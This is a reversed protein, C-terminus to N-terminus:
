KAELTITQGAKMPINIVGNEPKLDSPKGDLQYNNGEFPSALRLTGGKESKVTVSVVKGAKREASVLFAGITRLQRFSVDSWTKPVAPFLRVM